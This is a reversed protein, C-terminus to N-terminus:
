KEVSTGPPRPWGLLRRGPPILRHRKKTAPDIRAYVRVQRAGSRLVEINGRERRREV